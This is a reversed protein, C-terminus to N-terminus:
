RAKMEEQWADLKEQKADMKAIIKRPSPEDTGTPTGDNTGNEYYAVHSDVVAKL